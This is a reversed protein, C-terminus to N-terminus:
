PLKCAAKLAALDDSSLTVGNKNYPFMISAPNSNHGLGLSHGFEHALSHLLESQDKYAYIDIHKNGTTDQVYQGEEFDGGITSNFTNVVQNIQHVSANFSDIKTKITAAQASLADGQKQLQAQETKLSMQEAQLRTYTEKDAGGAANAQQVESAYKQSAVNFSAVASAYTQQAALYQQQLTQLQTREAAQSAETTDIKQGITVTQQRSDYVFNVPMANADNPEYALVTKGAATNWLAAAAALKTIVQDKTLNFRPDITGVTYALPTSCPAAFSISSIDIPRTHFYLAAGAVALVLALAYLYSVYRKM